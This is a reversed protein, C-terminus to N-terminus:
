SKIFTEYESKLQPNSEMEKMISSPGKIEDLGESKRTRYGQRYIDLKGLSFGGITRPEHIFETVENHEVIEEKLEILQKEEDQRMEDISLLSHRIQELQQLEKMSSPLRKCLQSRFQTGDTRIALIEDFSCHIRMLDSQYKKEFDSWEVMDKMIRFAPTLHSLLIENNVDETFTKFDNTVMCKKRSRDVCLYVMKDSGVLQDVVFDALAKQGGLLKEITYYQEFTKTVHEATMYNSISVNNNYINNIITPTKEELQKKYHQITEELEKIKQEPNKKCIHVHNELSQHTTFLKDCFICHKDKFKCINLHYELSRKSSLIVNCHKCKNEKAQAKGQLILCSKTKEMHSKLVYKSYFSKNCYSCVHEVHVQEM